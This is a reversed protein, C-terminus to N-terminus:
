RDLGLAFRIAADLEPLRAPSLSGARRELTQLRDPRGRSTVSRCRTTREDTM